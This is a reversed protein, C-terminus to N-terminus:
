REDDCTGSSSLRALLDIALEADAQSQEDGVTFRDALTSMVINDATRTELQSRGRRVHEGLRRLARFIEDAVGTPSAHAPRAERDRRLDAVEEAASLRPRWEEREHAIHTRTPTTM